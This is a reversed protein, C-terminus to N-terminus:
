LRRQWYGYSVVVKGPPEEAVYTRGLLARVGMAEFFDGVTGLGDVQEADGIGSVNIPLPQIGAIRELSQNRSRWAMVNYARSMNRQEGGPTREWVMVLREPDPFPLPNLLVAKLVAFVTITAAIGLSLTTVAVVTFSRDRVLLRAAFRIDHLLRERMMTPGWTNRTVDEVLPVNGFARRAARRAHDPKQGAAIRRETEAALHFAIEDKLDREQRDRDSDM